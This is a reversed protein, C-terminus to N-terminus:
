LIQKLKKGGCNEKMHHMAIGSLVETRREKIKEMIVDQLTQCKQTESPLFQEL